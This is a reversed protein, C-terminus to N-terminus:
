FSSIKGQRLSCVYAPLVGKYDPTDFNWLLKKVWGELEKKDSLQMINGHIIQKWLHAFSTWHPFITIVQRWLSQKTKSDTNVEFAPLWKLKTAQIFSDDKSCRVNRGALGEEKFPLLVAPLLDYAPFKQLQASVHFYINEGSNCLYHWYTSFFLEKLFFGFWVLIVGRNKRRNNLMGSPPFNLMLHLLVMTYIDWFLRNIKVLLVCMKWIEWPQAATRPWDPFLKFLLTHM